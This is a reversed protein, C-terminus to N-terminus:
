RTYNCCQQRHAQPQNSRACMTSHVLMCRFRFSLRSHVAVYYSDVEHVSELTKCPNMLGYLQVAPTEYITNAQIRKKLLIFSRRHGSNKQVCESFSTIM